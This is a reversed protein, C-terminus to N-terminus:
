RIVPEFIKMVNPSCSQVSWITCRTSARVGSAGAPEAPIEHKM